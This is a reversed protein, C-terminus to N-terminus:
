VVFNFNPGGTGTTPVPRDEKFEVNLRWRYGGTGVQVPVPALNVQVGKGGGIPPSPYM